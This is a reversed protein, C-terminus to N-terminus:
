ENLLYHMFYQRKALRIVNNIENRARKYQQWITVDNELTAKRKLYDRKHIKGTLEHSGHSM